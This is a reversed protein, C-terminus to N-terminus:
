LKLRDTSWVKMASRPLVRFGGGISGSGEITNNVNNKIWIASGDAGVSVVGGGTLSGLTASAGNYLTITGSNDDGVVSLSQSGNDNPFLTINGKNILSSVGLNDSSMGGVTISGNNILTGVGTGSSNSDYMGLTTQGNNTWTGIGINFADGGTTISGILTGISVSNTSFNTTNSPGLNLSCACTGKVNLVNNGTGSQDMSVGGNLNGSVVLASGSELDIGGGKVSGGVTLTSGDSFTIAGSNLTLGGTINLKEATGSLNQLSSSGKTGGLVLSNITANQDLTVTDTGGSDIIVNYTNGGSNNPVGNPTWDTGTSWTGTGGNWNSNTQGFTLTPCLCAAIVVATWIFRGSLKRTRLENMAGVFSTYV